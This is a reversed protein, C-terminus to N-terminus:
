VKIFIKQQYVREQGDVTTNLMKKRVFDLKLDKM